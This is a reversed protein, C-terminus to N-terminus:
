EGDDELPLTAEAKVALQAVDHLENALWAAVEKRVSGTSTPDEGHLAMRSITTTTTACGPAVPRVAQASSLPLVLFRLLSWDSRPAAKILPPM